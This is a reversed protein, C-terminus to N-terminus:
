FRVNPTVPYGFNTPHEMELAERILWPLDMASIASSMEYLATSADSNRCNRAAADINDRFDDFVKDFIKIIRDSVIKMQGRLEEEDRAIDAEALADSEDERM